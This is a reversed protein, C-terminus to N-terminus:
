IGIMNNVSNITQLNEKRGINPPMLIEGDSKLRQELDEVYGRQLDSLVKKQMAEVFENFRM